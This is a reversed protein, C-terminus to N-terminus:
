LVDYEAIVYGFYEHIWLWPVQNQNMDMLVSGSPHNYQNHLGASIFCIKPPNNLKSNYNAYSGHHPIQLLQLLNIQNKFHNDYQNFKKKSKANYDGFYICGAKDCSGLSVSYAVNSYGSLSIYMNSHCRIVDNIPGSYTVMSNDNINKTKKSGVCDYADHVLEKYTKGAPQWPNTDFLYKLLENLCLTIGDAGLIHLLPVSRQGVDNDYNFTRFIWIYNSNNLLGVCTGSRIKGGNENFRDSDLPLILDNNVDSDEASEIRIVKTDGYGDIPNGSIASNLINRFFTSNLSDLFSESISYVKSDDILPLFIKKIFCKSFLEELGSIHDEDFHSIFVADIVPDTDRPKIYKCYKGVCQKLAHSNESGCDFVVNVIGKDSIFQETYFAGQGVPHLTRIVRM